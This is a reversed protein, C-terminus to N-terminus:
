RLPLSFENNPTRDWMGLTPSYTYAEIRNTRPRIAILRVFGGGHNSYTTQTVLNGGSGIDQRYGGGYHGSVILLVNPHLKVLEDWMEDPDNNDDRIDGVMDGSFVQPSAFREQSVTLWHHTIIIAQSAAYLRLVENAWDIVAQRPAFELTLFVYEQGYINLTRYSNDSRGAEMFGGSWGPQAVFRSQPFYTNFVTTDRTADPLGENYDHNGVATLYPLGSGDLIEFAASARQFEEPTGYRVVDGVHLVIALRKDPDGAIDVVWRIANDLEPTGYQTYFQTDPIVALMFDQGALMPIDPFSYGRFPGGTLTGCMLLAISVLLSSRM